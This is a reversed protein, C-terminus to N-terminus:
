REQRSRQAPTQLKPQRKEQEAHKRAKRDGDVLELLHVAEALYVPFQRGPDRREYRGDAFQVDLLIRRSAARRM